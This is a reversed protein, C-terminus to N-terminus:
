KTILKFKKITLKQWNLLAVVDFSFKKSYFEKPAM